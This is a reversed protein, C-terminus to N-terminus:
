KVTVEKKKVVYKNIYLQQFIQFLNSAAWYLSIGAPLQFSFLLTMLPGIFMMSNQTSTSTDKNNGSTKPVMMKSSIYTTVVALIPMLLLPLYTAAESATFISSSFKPVLGLNIGLFKLSILEEPKLIDSVNALESVHENFYNLITIERSASVQLNGIAQTVYEALKAIQETTKNLIYKLPQNIVWYLSILIPMQILLPLCGSAPNYNHQQYLKLLEQNMKERDNKYRRQIDQILPQLEQMKATSRYQRITLPLLLLKVVVTFIIIALGYNKFAVTHYILYLFQGLIKPIFGFFNM